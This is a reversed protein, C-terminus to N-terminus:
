AFSVRDAATACRARHRRRRGVSMRVIFGGASLGTAAGGLGVSDADCSAVGARYVAEAEHLRGREHLLRGLNVYAGLCAPDAAIASRYAECAEDVSTAWASPACRGSAARASARCPM